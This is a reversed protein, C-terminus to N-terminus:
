VPLWTAFNYMAYIAVVLLTLGALLSGILELVIYKNHTM